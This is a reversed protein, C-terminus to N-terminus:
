SHLITEIDGRIQEAIEPIKKEIAPTCSEGFTTVDRVEVAYITVIEPLEMKMAKGLALAEPLSVQHRTMASGGRLEEARVKMLIGPQAGTMIADILIVHDWGRITDLLELGGVSSEKVEVEPLRRALERAVYIGVGDDTLLTNGLGIVLLRGQGRGKGRNKRTVPWGRKTFIGAM